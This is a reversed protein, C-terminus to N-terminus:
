KSAVEEMHKIIKGLADIKKEVSKILGASAKGRIKCLDAYADIRQNILDVYLEINIKDYDVEKMRDYDMSSNM